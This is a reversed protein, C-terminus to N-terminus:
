RSRKRETDYSRAQSELGQFDTSKSASYSILEHLGDFAQGYATDLKVILADRQQVPQGPQFELIENLINYDNNARQWLLNLKQLPLDQLIHLSIRKYLSILREASDIAGTFNLVSGLEKERILQVADFVQMRELSQKAEGRKAEEQENSM